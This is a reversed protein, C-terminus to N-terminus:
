RMTHLTWRRGGLGEKRHPVDPFATGRAGCLCHHVMGPPHTNLKGQEARDPLEWCQESPRLSEATARVSQQEKRYSVSTKAPSYIVGM